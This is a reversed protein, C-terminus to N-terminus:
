VHARGIQGSLVKNLDGQTIQRFVDPNLSDLSVNVRGVGTDKLMQAHEALHSANTSMSFDEIDPLAAIGRVMAEIDKHILPEGGTLRVKSVGMESFVRILRIFEDLKLRDEIETFGKFGKPICYFCRFDCRDTVSLRLYEIKRNFRDILATM